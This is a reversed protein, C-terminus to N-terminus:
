WKIKISWTPFLLLLLVFLVFTLYRKIITEKGIHKPSIWMHPFLIINATRKEIMFLLILYLLQYGKHQYTIGKKNEKKLYLGTASTFPLSGLCSKQYFFNTLIPISIYYGVGLFFFTLNSYVLHTLAAVAQRGWVETIWQQTKWDEEGVRLPM